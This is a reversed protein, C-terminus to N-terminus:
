KTSDVDPEYLDPQNRSRTCRIYDIEDLAGNLIGIVDPDTAYQHLMSIEANDVTTKFLKEFVESRVTGGLRTVPELLYGRRKHRTIKMGSAEITTLKTQLMHGLLGDRIHKIKEDLNLRQSYLGSLERVNDEIERQTFATM